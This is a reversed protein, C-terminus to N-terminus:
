YMLESSLTLSVSYSVDRISIAGIKPMFPSDADDM